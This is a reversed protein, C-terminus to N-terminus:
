EGFNNQFLEELEDAVKQAEPGTISIKLENGQKAGLLLVAILGNIAVPGKGTSLNTVMTKANKGGIAKAFLTAPRAHLGTANTVTRVLELTGPAQEVPKEEEVPSVPNSMLSEEKAKLGLMAEQDVEALPAGMAAKVGAALAGEVFPAASLKVRARQKEDLMELAMQTSLLASGLDMLVLTGDPNDLAILAESIEVANTGIELNDEGIGAAVRMSLEPGAMQKVLELTGQALKFSHSVFLIAVM